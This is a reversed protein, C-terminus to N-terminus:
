LGIFVEVETSYVSTLCASREAVFILAHNYDNTDYDHRSTGVRYYIHVLLSEQLAAVRVWIKVKKPIVM